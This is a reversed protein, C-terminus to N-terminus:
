HSFSLDNVSIIIELITDGEQTAAWSVFLDVLTLQGFRNTGHNVGQLNKILVFKDSEVNVLMYGIILQM